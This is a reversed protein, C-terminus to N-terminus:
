KVILKKRKIVYIGSPLEKLNNDSSLVKRGDLTYINTVGANELADSQISRIGTPDPLVKLVGQTYRFEYNDAEGGSIVIPYEGPESQPTAECSVVPMVTLASADEDLKYGSISIEFDPNEEGEYRTYEGVSVKLPAKWVTLVGDFFEVIEDVVTGRELHIVYTGAPSHEDADCWVEPVGTAMDGSISYGLKPMADGYFKGANRASIASGFEEINDHLIEGEKYFDGWGAHQKYKNKSGAPVYLKCMSKRIGYFVDAGVEIPERAFVKIMRLKWANYLGNNEIRTVSSPIFLEAIQQCSSFAGEAIVAVGDRVKYTGKVSPMVMMLLTTDKRSYLAEGDSVFNCQENNELGELKEMKTCFGFAAKGIAQLGQPVILHRLMRCGYFAYDGLENDRTAYNVGDQTLYPNGGAVVTAGSLDLSALRGRSASGDTNRGAMMRLLGLDSSNIPGEVKLATIKWVNEDSIFNRLTGATTLTVEQSMPELPTGGIGIIMDQQGDFSYTRPNLLAINYYGNETGNWGWNVSVYGAEDYGDLVFAHGGGDVPDNDVGSYYVPRNNSLEEYLVEMWQRESYAYRNLMDANSYGFYNRLASEASGSYAGSGEPSYNMDVAIGCHSMLEAVADAEEETYSECYYIDRMLDYRYYTHEFDALGAMSHYHSGHGHEPSRQYYILQAIATAVCGTVCTDTTVPCHNWYPRDQGWESSLLTPVKAKFKDTDPAINGPAKKGESRTQESAQQVMHLYWRFNPNDSDSRFTKESYGLLEPMADDVAVIAFGGQEFGWVAYDDTRKMERLAAQHGQVRAMVGSHTLAAAAVQRMQEATRPAAHLSALTLLLSGALLIAKRIM